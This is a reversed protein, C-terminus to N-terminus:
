ERFPAGTWLVAIAALMLSLLLVGWRSLTPIGTSAAALAVGGPDPIAGNLALDDDGLGGDTLVLTVTNGTITAGPFPYWHPAGQGPTPGYKMYVAGSPFPQPYTLTITVAAGNPCGGVIVDFLGQPFVYGATGGSPPSGAGGTRPIFNAQDFGCGAPGSLSANVTGGGTPSIGTATTPRSRMVTVTYNKTSGSQATVQVTVVNNGVNLAIPASANGSPTAVGNVMVSASGDAVTPTVTISSDPVTVNYNQQAASFVPSLTGSSLLLAGLDNNSSVARTVTVTYTKTTGNQATVVVTVTNAGTNMAIAGSANGSAVAVGNVTVAANPENVTPTVIISTTAAAISMTYGTTSPAFAPSISGSPLALASLNADGSGARTVTVTYTKTTTGDQATVVTTITNAGVALAIAGSASGSTTAVGNVTVSATADAVTPTVTLSTTANGISATYSSTGAAFAPALTGSSLSLASLDADGSPLARTITVTYSKTASNQATVVITVTNSGPNMAIAGSAAGSTVAVGNVTISSTGAAATPTVTLSSTGAAISAVYGTTGSAFVPSLTGSSLSLASLDANSSAARTVTVTYTKTTTGDQATVVTTLTNSGVNLAIAGSANGSTTAVGNVTVSATGAAVTPTVTLSTTANSVSATYSTTGAAFAPALTGSSLSLASLDANSSGARTVTVTYSLPTGNQATVTVTITNSGVNLAIAGSANGSTTAVGNVTVSATADAVTPTATLSTTANGVSATYGTTGSAFAPTLAGSSLSLAGLQNNGSAAARTVTTTYTSTTTGDQATVVTTITNSGVALAIAGSANGSTVAVGNVTVSATADAVTPTATLSTTTFPVSATYSTTGSAFVPNLTGASLALNSLNANSSPPAARTVTITYTKTTSGDLATVVTTITNSGVNLAIAGSATGSAVTVGNVTVTAGPTDVTPTVTTSTIANAVTFGYSTTAALFSFGGSSASLASLDANGTPETFVFNNFGEQWLQNPAGASGTTTIRVEDVNGFDALLNVTVNSGGADAVFPHGAGTAVGNRYGTATYTAGLAQVDQIVFSTIGFLRNLQSKIVLAGVPNLTSFILMSNSGSSTLDFNTVSGSLTNGVNAFYIEYEINPFHIQASLNSDLFKSVTFTNDALTPNISLTGAVTPLVHRYSPFALVTSRLPGTRHELLWDGGQGADGTLNTSAAVQAGTAEALLAMFAQGEAGRGVECGYLLLDAEDGLAERIRALDPGRGRLAQSDLTLSGLALAGQAGHSILHVASINKRGSLADAMQRLGDTRADLVVVEAASGAGAMLAEHHAVDDEIFLVATRALAPTPLAAAFALSSAAGLIWFFGAVWLARLFVVESLKKGLYGENIKKM